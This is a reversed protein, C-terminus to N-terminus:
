CCGWLVVHTDAIDAVFRKYSGKKKQGKPWTFPVMGDAIMSASIFSSGGGGPLYPAICTHLTYPFPLLTSPARQTLPVAYVVM